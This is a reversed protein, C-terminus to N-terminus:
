LAEREGKGHASDPDFDIPGDMDKFVRDTSSKRSRIIFITIVVIGIIVALIGM